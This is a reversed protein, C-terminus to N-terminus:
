EGRWAAKIRNVFFQASGPNVPAIEYIAGNKMKILKEKKKLNIVANTFRTNSSVTSLIGKKYAFFYYNGDNPLQIYFYLGDEMNSPMKFEIYADIYVNMSKGNISGLGISTKEKSMFSQYNYDWKMKLQNFFFTHANGRPAAISKKNEFDALAENYKKEDVIFESLIKKHESNVDMEVEKLNFSTSNIDNIMIQLIKEPFPFKFGAMIEVEVPTNFFHATETSDQSPPILQTKAIGAAEISAHKLGQGFELKGTGVIEGTKNNIIMKNGRLSMSRMRLSDGFVFEDNIANYKFTGRTDLIARDKRFTLPNMISPYIQADERGLYLGCRVPQGDISKPENFDLMLNQKDGKSRISFWSRYPINDINIRAFGDFDLEKSDSSLYINGQYQTKKDIYFDDEEKIVGSARTATKKESRDGKGIRSGIVNSFLIEQKREGLNYEYYGSATFDKKGKIDISAKNIVHNKNEKSAVIKANKLTKIKAGAEIEVNGDSPYILADASNIYPVGSIKLASNKYDYIAANGEFILSDQEPHISLFSALDKGENTFTIRGKEMDWEFGEMSTRYQNYPMTTTIETSNAKFVGYKKDFDINSQVNKSDFALKSIADSARIVLDSTDAKVSNAGFLLLKSKVAATGWDFTGNGFLGGPTLILNGKMTYGSNKFINFQGAKPMVYMSDNHPVWNISIDAGRVQPVEPTGRKEDMEFVSAHCILNKPQFRIDESNISAGLYNITGKGRFGSNNLTFDGKYKGKSNYMNLGGSPTNSVFGLSQDEEQLSVTEKFPPFIDAAHMMGQFQLQEPMYDGLNELTFEDLKFYFSDRKYIDKLKEDIDYFIYAPGTSTFTPMNSVDKIGSKNDPENILLIGNTHEIKSAISHAIPRDKEDKKASNKFVNLYRISDMIFKYPEYDFHFDKGEFTSLGAFIQGDFDINRNKKLVLQQGLPKAAVRGKESFEVFKVADIILEKERSLNLVANTKKTISKISLADYDAKKVAAKAYHNLKPQVEIMENEKDYKIFGKEVLDYLLGQVNSIGFNGNISKAIDLADIKQSQMEYTLKSIVAIPNKSSISQLDRYTRESFFNVSEFINENELGGLGLVQKDFFISDTQINWTIKDTGIQVNHYTDFFPNRNSGRKGRSIQLEQNEIDFRLNASPHHISDKDFFIITEANESIIRDDKRIVFQEAFSEFQLQNNKKNFIKINAKKPANAYGYITKGHLRFGGNYKVGAGINDIQLVNDNSEFRPYTPSSNPGLVIIKDEFKGKLQKTGFFEPFNLMAEAARYENQKINLEYKGITCYVDSPFGLRDWSVQGKDGIFKQENVYYIGATQTILLSDKKRYGLLDLDPFNITLANDKFVFEYKNTLVKWAGSTSYKLANENYFHNSFKLYNQFISKKSNALVQNLIKHYQDFKRGVDEKKTIGIISNLYEMFANVGMRKQLFTNSTTHLHKFQDADIAPYIKSFKEYVGKTDKRNKVNLYTALEELYVTKDSSFEKLTQASLQLFSFCCFLLTLTIKYM